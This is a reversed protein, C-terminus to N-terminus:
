VSLLVVLLYTFFTATIAPRSHIQFWKLSYFYFAQTEELKTDRLSVYVARLTYQVKLLKIVVRTFYIYAYKHETSEENDGQQSSSSWCIVPCKFKGGLRIM